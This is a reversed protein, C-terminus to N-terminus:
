SEVQPAFVLALNNSIIALQKRQAEKRKFSDIAERLQIIEQLLIQNKNKEQM